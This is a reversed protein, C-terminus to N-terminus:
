RIYKQYNPLVALSRKLIGNMYAIATGYNTFPVGVTEALERRSQMERENLMCGGCHVILKYQTIDQPFTNGSSTEFVIEKGTHKKIWNPLKVTGIDECQRHHTCGEAILIKDGNELEDLMRAGKVATKLFGKYRAMLISFSTLMIDDSVIKSVCKFVQSDTIVLAPKQSLKKLTSELETDRVCIATAGADLVDRLVQQQPLIIRGKPASSDIPIVLVVLDGNNVLDRCVTSPTDIKVLKAIAEKLKYINTMKRASVSIGDSYLQDGSLDSKNYAIIYPVKREKFIKILEYDTDSKGVTSDVVLVAIDTHRLVEKTRKIRQEGLDGNDDFGPTDIILVPGLPLLEMAKSVPDTTTGLINSVVSMQQNTVANVVSSKGANRKGFFGIHIRESNPTDNLSM